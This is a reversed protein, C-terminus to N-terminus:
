SFQSRLGEDEQVRGEMEHRILRGPRESEFMGTLLSLTLTAAATGMWFISRLSAPEEVAGRLGAISGSNAFVLVFLAIVLLVLNRLVSHWGIPEMGLLGGCGCPAVRHTALVYIMAGTFFCILALALAANEQRWLGTLLGLGAAGEAVPIVLALRGTQAIGYGMLSRRFANRHMAKWLASSLFVAALVFSAVM